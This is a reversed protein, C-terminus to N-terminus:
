HASAEFGAQKVASVLQSIDGSTVTAANAELSVAVGEAGARLLAQEVAGACGDCKKGKISITTM